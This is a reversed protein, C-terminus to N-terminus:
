DRNSRRAKDVATKGPRCVGYVEKCNQHTRPSQMRFRGNMVNGRKSKDSYAM